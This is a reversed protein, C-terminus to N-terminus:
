QRSTGTGAGRRSVSFEFADPLHHEISLLVPDGEVDYDVQVLRLLLAGRKVRLRRALAAGATVPHISAVGHHVEHGKDSLYGYVSGGTLGEASLKDTGLVAEPILDRSDVVPVGDATRLRDLVWVRGGGGLDLRDAEEATADRLEVAAERTGAQLGHEEILQTVGTNLGLDNTLLPRHTKVTGVGPRRVVLGADEASRLGERLTPRSVELEEALEPEAPLREGPRLSAIRWELRDRVSASDSRRDPNTSMPANVDDGRDTLIRADSGNTQCVRM